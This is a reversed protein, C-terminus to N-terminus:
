RYKEPGVQIEFLFVGKRDNYRYAMTVERDRFMKLQENKAIQRTIQPELFDKLQETDVDEKLANILTYNYQFINDPLISASDLRTENDVMLPSSKNVEKAAQLLFNDGTSEQFFFYQVLFFTIAFTIAYAVLTFIRQKSSKEM